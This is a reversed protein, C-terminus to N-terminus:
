TPGLPTDGLARSKGQLGNSVRGLVVQRFDVPGPPVKLFIEKLSEHPIGVAEVGVIGRAVHLRQEKIGVLSQMNQAVGHHLRAVEAGGDENAFVM